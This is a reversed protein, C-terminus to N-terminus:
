RCVTLLSTSMYTILSNQVMIPHLDYQASLRSVKAARIRSGCTAEVDSVFGSVAQARHREIYIAATRIYMKEDNDYGTAKVDALVAPYRTAVSDLNPNAYAMDAYRNVTGVMNPTLLGTKQQMAACYALLLNTAAIVTGGAGIATYTRQGWLAVVGFIGVAVIMYMMASRLAAATILCVALWAIRRTTFGRKWLVTMAYACGVTLTTALPETCIVLCMSTTPNSVGYLLTVWFAAQTRKGLILVLMRYLLIDSVWLGPFQLWVM